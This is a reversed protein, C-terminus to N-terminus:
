VWGSGVAFVGSWQNNILVNAPDTVTEKQIALPIGQEGIEHACWYVQSMRADICPLVISGPSRDTCEMALATLTSVGFVPIDYALSFGQIVGAAIRIGTFSGPGQGYVLADIDSIKVKQEVLITEVIGLIRKAHQRPISEHFNHWTGHNYLSVSCIDSSTDIALIRDM